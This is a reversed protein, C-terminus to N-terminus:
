EPYNDGLTVTVRTGFRTATSTQLTFGYLGSTWSAGPLLPAQKYWTLNTAGSLNQMLSTNASNTFDADLYRCTLGLTYNPIDTAFLDWQGLRLRRELVAVKGTPNGSGDRLSIVAAIKDKTVMSPTQLYVSYTGRHDHLYLIQSNEIWRLKMRTVNSVMVPTPWNIQGMPDVPDGYEQVIGAETKQANSHVAVGFNHILEHVISGMNMDLVTQSGSSSLQGTVRQPSSVDGYPGVSASFGNRCVPNSAFLYIRHKYQVKSFGQENAARNDAEAHLAGLDFNCLSIDQTLTIWGTVDGTGNIVGKLSVQNPGQSADKLFQNVSKQGTFVLSRLQEQTYPTLPSSAFNVLLVLVDREGNTAPPMSVANQVINDTKPPNDFAKVDIVSFADSRGSEFKDSKRDRLFDGYVVVERNINQMLLGGDGVLKVMEKQPDLLIREKGVLGKNLAKEQERLSAWDCVRGACSELFFENSSPTTEDSEHIILKLRGQLSAPYVGVNEVDASVQKSTSVLGVVFLITLAIIMIKQM